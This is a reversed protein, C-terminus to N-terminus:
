PDARPRRFGRDHLRLLLRRVVPISLKLIPCLKQMVGTTAVMKKIKTTGSIHQLVYTIFEVYTKISDERYYNDDGLNSQDDVLLIGGDWWILVGDVVDNTPYDRPGNKFIDDLDTERFGM